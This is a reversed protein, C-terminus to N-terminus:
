SRACVNWCAAVTSFGEFFHLWAKGRFYLPYVGVTGFFCSPEFTRYMKTWHAGDLADRSVGRGRMRTGENFHVTKIWGQSSADIAWREEMMERSSAQDIRSQARRVIDINGGLKSM